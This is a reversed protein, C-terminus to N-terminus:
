ARGWAGSSIMRWDILEAVARFGRSVGIGLRVIEGVSARVLLESFESLFGECREVLECDGGAEWDRNLISTTSGLPEFCTWSLASKMDRFM